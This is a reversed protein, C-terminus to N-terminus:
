TSVSIIWQQRKYSGSRVGFVCGSRQGRRGSRRQQQTIKNM